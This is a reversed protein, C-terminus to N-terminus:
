EIVPTPVTGTPLTSVPLNLTPSITWISEWSGSIKAACPNLISYKRASCSLSPFTWTFNFPLDAVTGISWNYLTDGRRLDASLAEKVLSSCNASNDLRSKVTSWCFRNLLTISFLSNIM